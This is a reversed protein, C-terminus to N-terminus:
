PRIYGTNCAFIRYQPIDGHGAKELLIETIEDGGVM